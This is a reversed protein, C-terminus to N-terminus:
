VFELCCLLWVKALVIKQFFFIM